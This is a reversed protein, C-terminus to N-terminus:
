LSVAGMERLRALLKFMPLGMITTHDGEVREFLHAGLGEIQYGGVSSLAAHGAARLYIAIQAGDLRRMTMVAIDEDHTIMRGDRAIAFASILRHARGSLKMLQAAADEITAPKHLMQGALALVQDAGLCLAGPRRESVRLAKARALAAALNEVEGGGEIFAAEIDREDIDAADTEFPLGASELLARRAASKSALVLQHGPNWLPNSM